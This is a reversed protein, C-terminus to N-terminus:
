ITLDYFGFSGIATNAVGSAGITRIGLTLVDSVGALSVGLQTDWKYGLPTLVNTSSQATATLYDVQVIQTGSPQSTFATASIDYDVDQFTGTIWSAGTLGVNKVIVVEYNASSIPLVAFQFPLIVAGLHSSNLRISIMPVFLNTTPVTIPSTNRAWYIQSTEEYGGESNVSCCIQKMTASLAATSTIEYRIPLVATTMYVSTNVNANQFTHCTIIVGNIVFGCRVSGVGLWEIDTWFIQTKTPDLTLGSPGTGDLKDGNWSSQNITRVDSPTGPTPISDSRLVFSNTSDVRQFFIGNNSDFFGCRQTLSSSTSSDMCFTALIFLSKGPQYPFYRYTQRVVSGVGGSTVSMAVSSQNSLFSTSGTGTTATDFSVDSAYRQQSDFLTYPQSIRLRGFADTQNGDIAVYIPDTSSQGKPPYLNITV